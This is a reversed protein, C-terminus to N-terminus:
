EQADADETDIEQQMANDYEEKLLSAKQHYYRMTTKPDSHGAMVSAAQLTMGNNLLETIRTHRLVHPWVQRKLGALKAASSILTSVWGVSMRQGAVSCFVYDGMEDWTARDELWGELDSRCPEDFIVLREKNGKGLVMATRNALDLKDLTLGTLESNRVGSSYFFHLMARDRKGTGFKGGLTALMKDFDQRELVYPERVPGKEEPAQIRSKLIKLLQGAVELEEFEDLYTFFKKLAAHRQAVTSAALGATHFAANWDLLIGPTTASLLPDGVKRAFSKVENVYKQRTIPSLRTATAMYRDFGDLYGTLHRNTPSTM